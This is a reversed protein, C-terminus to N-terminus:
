QSYLSDVLIGCPLPPLTFYQLARLALESFSNQSYRMFSVLYPFELKVTLIVSNNEIKQYKKRFKKPIHSEENSARFIEKAFIEQVLGSPLDVKLNMTGGDNEM